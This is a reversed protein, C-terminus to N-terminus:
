DEMGYRLGIANEDRNGVCRDFPPASDPLYDIGGDFM